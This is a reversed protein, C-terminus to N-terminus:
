VHVDVARPQVKAPVCGRYSSAIEVFELQQATFARQNITMDRAWALLERTQVPLHSATREDPTMGAWLLRVAEVYDAALRAAEVHDAALIAARFENAIKDLLAPM